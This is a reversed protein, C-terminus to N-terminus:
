ISFTSLYERGCKHASKQFLPSACPLITWVFGHQRALIHYRHQSNQLSVRILMYKRMIIVRSYNFSDSSFKQINRISTKFRMAKQGHRTLNYINNFIRDPNKDAFNISCNAGTVHASDRRINRVRVRTPSAVSARANTM